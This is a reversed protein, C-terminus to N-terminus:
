PTVCTKLFRRSYQFFGRFYMRKICHRMKKGRRTSPLNQKNALASSLMKQYRLKGCSDGTYFVLESSGMAIWAGTINNGLVMWTPQWNYIRFTCIRDARNIKGGEQSAKLTQDVLQAWDTASLGPTHPNSGIYVACTWKWGRMKVVGVRFGKTQVHFGCYSFTDTWLLARPSFSCPRTPFPRSESRPSDEDWYPVLIYTEIERKSM